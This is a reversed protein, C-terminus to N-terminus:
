LEKLLKIELTSFRLLTFSYLILIKRDGSHYLAM